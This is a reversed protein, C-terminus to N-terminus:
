AQTHTAAAAQMNARTTACVLVDWAREDVCGDRVGVHREKDVPATKLDDILWRATALNRTEILCRLLADRESARKNAAGRAMSVFLSCRLIAHCESREQPATANHAHITQLRDLVKTSCILRSRAVELLDGAHYGMRRWSIESRCLMERREWVKSERRSCRSVIYASESMTHCVFEIGHLLLRCLARKSQESNSGLHSSSSSERECVQGNRPRSAQARRKMSGCERYADLLGHEVRGMKQVLAPVWVLSRRRAPRVVSFSLGCGRGTMAKNSRERELEEEGRVAETKENAGM